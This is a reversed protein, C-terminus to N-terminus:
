ILVMAGYCAPMYGIDSHSFASLFIFVCFVVLGGIPPIPEAHQKRGGPEDVYGSKIALKRVPPILLATLGIALLPFFLHYLVADFTM